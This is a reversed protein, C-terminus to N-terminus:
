TKAGQNEGKWVRRRSNGSKFEISVSGNPMEGGMSPVETDEPFKLVKLEAAEIRKRTLKRKDKQSPENERILCSYTDKRQAGTGNQEQKYLTATEM